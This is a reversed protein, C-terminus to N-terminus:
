PRDGWALRKVDPSRERRVPMNLIGSGSACRRNPTVTAASITSPPTAQAPSLAADVATVGGTSGGVVGVGEGAVAGFTMTIRASASPQDPVDTCSSAATGM